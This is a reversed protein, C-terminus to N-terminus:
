PGTGRFFWLAGMYEIVTTDVTGAVMFDDFGDGQFDAGSALGTGFGMLGEEGRILSSRAASLPAVSSGEENVYGALAEGSLLWVAGRSDEFAPDALLIDQTGDGNVDGHEIELPDFTGDYDSWLSRADETASLPGSLSGDYLALKFHTAGGLAALSSRGDGWPGPAMCTREYAFDDLGDEPRITFTAEEALMTGWLEAGSFGILSSTETSAEWSTSLLEPLGDGDLDCLTIDGLYQESETGFLTVSSLQPEGDEFTYFYAGGADFAYTSDGGAGVGLAPRDFLASADIVTYGFYQPEDRNGTILVMETSTHLVGSERSDVAIVTGAEGFIPDSLPAGMILEASGDEDVDMALVSGLNGLNQDESGYVTLAAGAMSRDSDPENHWFIFGRGEETASDGDTTTFIAIDPIGAGGTFDPLFVLYGGFRSDRYEQSLQADAEEASLEAPMACPNEEECDNDVGDGCVEEAGPHVAANDDDCDEVHDRLWGEGPAECFTQALSVEMSAYGDGDADPFWVQDNIPEDDVLDNCDDDVENCWETAGPRVESQTDDCDSCDQIWNGGLKCTESATSPDGYGDDDLDLCHIIGTSDEDVGGDCDDDLGNCPDARGPSQDPENDNCDGEALTWGDGDADTLRAVARDYPSTDYLLCSTLLLTLM